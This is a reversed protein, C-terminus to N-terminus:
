PTAKLELREDRPNYDGSGPDSEPFLMTATITIPEWKNNALVELPETGKVKHALPGLTATHSESVTNIPTITTAIAENAKEGGIVMSVGSSGECSLQQVFQEGPNETKYVLGVVPSPSSKGEVITMAGKWTPGDKLYGHEWATNDVIEAQDEADTTNCERGEEPATPRCERFAWHPAEATTHAGTIRIETQTNLPQCTITYGDALTITTSAM